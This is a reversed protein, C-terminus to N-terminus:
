DHLRKAWYGPRRSTHSVSFIRIVAGILRFVVLYPYGKLRAYRTHKLHVGFRNPDALVESLVENLAAVFGDAADPSRQLYWDVAAEIEITAEPHFDLTRGAM